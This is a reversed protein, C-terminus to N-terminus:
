EGKAEKLPCDKDRSIDTRDIWQIEKVSCYGDTQLECEGCNPPFQKVTIEAIVIRL